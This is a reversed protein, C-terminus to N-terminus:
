RPSNGGDVAEEAIDDSGRGIIVRELEAAILDLGLASPHEHDVSLEEISRGSAALVPWMDVAVFGRETVAQAVREHLEVYPYETWDKRKGFSPFIPVLVPIRRVSCVERARDWAAVVIPWHPGDPSNLYRYEDGAGIRQVSWNRRAEAFMRLVHSHEWWEADHFVQHLPQLPETEAGNPHYDLVVLDPDLSMAKTALTAVEDRITYGGVGLNLVEYRTTGRARENLRVELRAPYSQEVPVTWGFAISAGVVVIRITDRPKTAKYERGRFGLSNVSVEVGHATGRMNPNLEYDLGPTTSKRHLLGTWANPPFNPAPERFRVPHFCRLGLEIACSLVICNAAILSAVFWAPRRSCLSQWATRASM